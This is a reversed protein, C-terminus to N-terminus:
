WRQLFVLTIRQLHFVDGTPCGATFLLRELYRCRPLRKVLCDTTTARDWRRSPSGEGSCRRARPRIGDAGTSKKRALHTRVRHPRVRGRNTSSVRAPDTRSVRTCAPESASSRGPAWYVSRRGVLPWNAAIRLSKPEVLHEFPRGAPHGMRARRVPTRRNMGFQRFWTEGFWFM